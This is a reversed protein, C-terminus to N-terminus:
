MFHNIFQDINEEFQELSDNNDIVSDFGTYDDLATESAHNDQSALRWEANIRVVHGGWSQVVEVENPFRIDPIVVKEPLELSLTRHLSDLWIDGGYQERFMDTGMEQLVQRPSLGWYEDEEEKRDGNVQEETFGFIEKAAEKIPDALSFKEYGHEEVLRDAMHDKGSRKKGSIGVIKVGMEVPDVYSISKNLEERMHEMEANVGTSQRWGQAKVVKIEDAWELFPIDQDKWFEWSTPMDHMEAMTHSHTIPSFVVLDDEALKGAIRTVAQFRREMIHDSEHSYPMALYVRKARDDAAVKQDVPPYNKELINLVQHTEVWRSFDAEDPRVVLMDIKVGEVENDRVVGYETEGASDYAIRDGKEFDDASFQSTKVM